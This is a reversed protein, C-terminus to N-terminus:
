IITVGNDELIEFFKDWVAETKVVERGHKYEQRLLTYMAWIAGYYNRANSYEEYEATEEPLNFEIIAKM